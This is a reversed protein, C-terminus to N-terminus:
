ERSIAAHTKLLIQAEEHVRERLSEPHLVQVHRGWGFVWGFVEDIHRVRLTVLLGDPNPERKDIYFFHEEMIWPQVDEDFLLQVVLHRDDRLKEDRIDYDLPREYHRSTLQLAEIRSLRFIRREKRLHCYGTMYWAGDLYALSYPDAERRSVKGDGPFRTFYRFQVTQKALIAHRLLRLANSQEPPITHTSGLFLNHELYEAQQRTADSLVSLVKRRTADVVIRYDRDFSNTVSALGLLILTAEDETFALPPLFYGDALRYGEGMLSVIPIGAESLAQIDRYITRKSTGFHRALDEARCTGRVRIELVLALLRDTRNM